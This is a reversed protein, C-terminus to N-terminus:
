SLARVHWCVRARVCARVCVCVHMCVCVCSAFLSASSCYVALQHWGHLTTVGAILRRLRMSFSTTKMRTSMSRTGITACTIATRWSGVNVM